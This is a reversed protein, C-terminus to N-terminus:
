LEFKTYMDNYSIDTADMGPHTSLKGSMKKVVSTQGVGEHRKCSMRDM